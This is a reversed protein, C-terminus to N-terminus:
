AAGKLLTAPRLVPVMDIDGIRRLLVVPKLQVRIQGSGNQTSHLPGLVSALVWAEGNSAALAERFGNREHIDQPIEFEVLLTRAVSTGEKLVLRLDGGLDEAHTLRFGMETEEAEWRQHFFCAIKSKELVEQFHRSVMGALSGDRQVRAGALSQGINLRHFM